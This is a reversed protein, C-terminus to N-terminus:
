PRVTEPAGLNNSGDQRDSDKGLEHQNANVQTQRGDADEEKRVGNPRDHCVHREDHGDTCLGKWAAHEALMQDLVGDM